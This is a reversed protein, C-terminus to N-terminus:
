PSPRHHPIAEQRATGDELFRYGATLTPSGLVLGWIGVGHDLTKFDAATGINDGGRYISHDNLGVSYTGPEFCYFQHLHLSGHHLLFQAQSSLFQQM